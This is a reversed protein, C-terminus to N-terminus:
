INFIKESEKLSMEYTWEKWKKFRDRINPTNQPNGLNEFMIKRM